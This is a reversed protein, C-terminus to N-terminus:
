ASSARRHRALEIRARLAIDQLISALAPEASEAEAESLVSLRGLRAPDAAGGLMELQMGTLERLAASARRRARSEAPEPALSEQLALLGGLAGPASPGSISAAQAEEPLAFRGARRVARPGAVSGGSVPRVPGM